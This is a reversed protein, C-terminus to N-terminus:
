QFLKMLQLPMQNAQALMSIGAQLLIQKSTFTTMESAVDLDLLSSRAAEQNETSTALNASAFEIRNQNAGVQSRATNLTVIADDILSSATDANASTTISTGTLGLNDANIGSISVSITDKTSDTGTGVKYSFSATDSGTFHLGGASSAAVTTDAAFATNLAIVFDGGASATTGTLKVSTGTVLDSNADLAAADISGTYTGSAASSLTFVGTTGVYSLTYNDAAATTAGHATIGSVGDEVAFASGTGATVAAGATTLSGNVLQQGNFETSKAIRTVESTLAQYETNLMSRETDSLQGSGAQVSLTKMRTLVDNVKSMAGDAIQLMSVAQGANVSAQKLAAVNASLRSGIAMSAADDKASVVRSGSSLKALSASSQMDSAQLNRHAVNAAYNSLVSLAM